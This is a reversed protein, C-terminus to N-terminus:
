IRSIVVKVSPTYEFNSLDEKTIWKFETHEESLTAKGTKPKAFFSYVDINRDEFKYINFYGGELEIDLGSEEKAERVAAEELTENDEVKGGPFDWFNPHNFENPSRKMILIEGKDNRIVVNVSRELERIIIHKFWKEQFDVAKLIEKDSMGILNKPVVVLKDDDDNTRHIIAICKGTSEKLPKDVGLVYADIEEGDPAQTNPVFGYNVEYVFGYKPHKSGIPRDIKINVTAGLYKAAYNDM